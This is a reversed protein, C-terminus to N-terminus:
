PSGGPNVTIPTAGINYLDYIEDGRGTAILKIMNKAVDPEVFKQLEAQEIVEELNVQSLNKIIYEFEDIFGIFQVFYLQRM